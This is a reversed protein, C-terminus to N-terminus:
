MASDSALISSPSEQLGYGKGPVNRLHQPTTSQQEQADNYQQESRLLCHNSTSLETSSLTHTLDKKGVVSRSGGQFPALPSPLCLHSPSHAAHLGWTHTHTNEGGSGFRTDVTSSLRPTICGCLMAVKTSLIRIKTHKALKM